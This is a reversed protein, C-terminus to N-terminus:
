QPIPQTNSKVNDSQGNDVAPLTYRVITSDHEFGWKRMAAAERKTEGKISTRGLSRTWDCVLGFMKNALGQAKPEAWVQYIWTYTKGEPAVAIGFGRLKGDDWAQVILIADPTYALCEKLERVFGDGVFDADPLLQAAMLDIYRPTTVRGITM